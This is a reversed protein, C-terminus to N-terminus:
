RGPSAAPERARLWGILVALPGLLWLERWAARLNLAFFEPLWYRRSIASFWHLDSQYFSSTFPWLAMIGVPPTTDSGLWDLLIHSAWAAACALAFVLRSPVHPDVVRRWRPWALAALLGVVAAAGVSHTYRSHLGVLLDADPLVGLAACLVGFAPREPRGAM